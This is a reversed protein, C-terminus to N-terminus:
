RRPGTSPEVPGLLHDPLHALDGQLLGADLARHGERAQRDVAEGIGLGNVPPPPFMAIFAEPIAAYKRNLSQAIAAGNRLSGESLPAAIACDSLRLYAAIGSAKM